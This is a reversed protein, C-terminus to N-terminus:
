SQPVELLLTLRVRDSMGACHVVGFTWRELRLGERLTSCMLKTGTLGLLDNSGTMVVAARSIPHINGEALANSIAAIEGVVDDLIITYSGFWIPAGSDFLRRVEDWDTNIFASSRYSEALDAEMLSRAAEGGTGSLCRLSAVAFDPEETELHAMRKEGTRYVALIAFFLDVM